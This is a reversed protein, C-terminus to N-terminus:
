PAEERGKGRSCADIDNLQALARDLQKKMEGLSLLCKVRRRLTAAEVPDCLYDDCKSAHARQIDCLEELRTVFIIPVECTSPDAKLQRCAEYGSKRPMMIDLLVLDPTESHVRELAEVGDMATLMKCRLDSLFVINRQLFFEQDDAVLVKCQAFGVGKAGLVNPKKHASWLHAPALCTAEQRRQFAAAEDSRGLAKLNMAQDGLATAFAVYDGLDRCATVLQRLPVM